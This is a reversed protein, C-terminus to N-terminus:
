QVKAHVYRLIQEGCNNPCEIVIKPCRRQHAGRFVVKFDKHCQECRTQRHPCKEQHVTIEYQYVKVTCGLNPCKVMKMGCDRSHSEATELPGTWDCGIGEAEFSNPCKIILKQIMAHVARNRSPERIGLYSRDVPCTRNGTSIARNLCKSCLTHGDKCVVPDRLVALSFTFYCCLVLWCGRFVGSSAWDTATNM